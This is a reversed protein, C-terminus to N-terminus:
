HIYLFCNEHNWVKLYLQKEKKTHTKLVGTELPAQGQQCARGRRRHSCAIDILVPTQDETPTKQIGQQHKLFFFCFASHWMNGVVADVKLPSQKFSLVDENEEKWSGYVSRGTAGNEAWDCANTEDYYPETCSYQWSKQTSSLPYLDDLEKSLTSNLLFM